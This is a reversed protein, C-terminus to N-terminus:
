ESIDEEYVDSDEQSYVPEKEDGDSSISVVINSGNEIYYVMSVTLGSRIGRPADVSANSIDFAIARDEGERPYTRGGSNETDVYIMSGESYLVYGEAYERSYSDTGYDEASKEEELIVGNGQSNEECWDSEEKTNSGNNWDEDSEYWSDDKEKGAYNGFSDQSSISNNSVTNQDYVTVLPTPAATISVVANKQNGTNTDTRDAEAEKKDSTHFSGFDGNGCGSLLVASLGVVLIHKRM